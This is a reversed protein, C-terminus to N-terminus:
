RCCEASSLLNTDLCAIPIRVRLVTLLLLLLLMFLLLWRDRRCGDAAAEGVVVVGVVVASLVAVLPMRVAPFDAAVARSMSQLSCSAIFIVDNLRLELSASAPSRSRKCTKNHFNPATRQTGSNFDTHTFEATRFFMNESM